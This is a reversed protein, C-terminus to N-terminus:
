AENQQIVKLFQEVQALTNFVSFSVRVTGTENTGASHHALPACHLGTRVAIQRRSLREGVDNCDKGDVRFSLVGSQVEPEETHFVQIGPIKKLGRAAAEKLEQEHRLISEQGKEKVFRIGQLLGAIGPANQTGAELRDPLIDPMIQLASM